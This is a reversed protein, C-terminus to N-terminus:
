TPRPFSGLPRGERVDQMALAARETLFRIAAQSSPAAVGPSHGCLVDAVLEPSDSSSTVSAAIVKQEVDTWDVAEPGGAADIAESAMSWLTHGVGALPRLESLTDIRRQREQAASPLLTSPRSAEIYLAHVIRDADNPKMRMSSLCKALYRADGAVMGLAKHYASVVQAGYAGKVKEWADDPINGWANILMSLDIIDRSMEVPDLGRDANALLKEAFMDSRSLTPVGFNPEYSGSIPIRGESVIEFKIPEGDMELVTRIGYRDARVERLHPVPTRLLTGLDSNVLNRLLRYGDNSACLFDIDRSVRYEDLSLVIATGGAFYCDARQLVEADLSQLIKAIRRHHEREFM